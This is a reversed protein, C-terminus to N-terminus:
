FHFSFVLYPFYHAKKGNQELGSINKDQRGEDHETSQADPGEQSDLNEQM